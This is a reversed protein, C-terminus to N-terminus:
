PLMDLQAIVGTTVLILDTGYGLFKNLAITKGFYSNLLLETHLCMQRM